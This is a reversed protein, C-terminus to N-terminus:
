PSIVYRGFSFAFNKDYLVTPHIGFHESTHVGVSSIVGFSTALKSALLLSSPHRVIELVAQYTNPTTKPIMEHTKYPFVNYESQSEHTM